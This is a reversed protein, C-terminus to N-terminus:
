NAFDVVVWVIGNAKAVGVGMRRFAPNLIIARHEASHMFRRFTARTSPGYGVIQGWSSHYPWGYTGHYLRHQRCMRRAHREAYRDIRWGIRLHTEDRTVRATNVKLAVRREPGRSAVADTALALVVVLAILFVRRM